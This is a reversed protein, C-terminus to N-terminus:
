GKVEAKSSNLPYQIGIGALAMAMLWNSAMKCVAPLKPIIGCKHIISAVMDLHYVNAIINKWQVSQGKVEHAQVTSLVLCAPVIMLARTLKVITAIELAADGSGAAVM